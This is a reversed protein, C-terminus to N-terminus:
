VRFGNYIKKLRDVIEKAAVERVETRVVQDADKMFERVKKVRPGLADFFKRVPANVKKYYMKELKEGEKLSWIPKLRVIEYKLTSSVPKDGRGMIEKLILLAKDLGYTILESGFTLHIETRLELEGQILDELRRPDASFKFHTVKGVETEVELKKFGAKRIPELFEVDM